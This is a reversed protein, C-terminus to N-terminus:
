KKLNPNYSFVSNILRNSTNHRKRMADPKLNKHGKRAAEKYTIKKTKLRSDKIQEKSIKFDAEPLLILQKELEKQKKKLQHNLEKFSIRHNITITIGEFREYGEVPYDIEIPSKYLNIFNGLVLTSLHPRLLHSVKIIKDININIDWVLKLFFSQLGINKYEKSIALYEAYSYGKPPVNYKKRYEKLFIHFDKNRVIARAADILEQSPTKYGKPYKNLSKGAAIIKYSPWKCADKSALRPLVFQILM